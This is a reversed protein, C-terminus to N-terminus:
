IPLINFRNQLIKLTKELIGRFYNSGRKKKEITLSDPDTFNEKEVYCLFPYNETQRSFQILFILDTFDPCRGSM